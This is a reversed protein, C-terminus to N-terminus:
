LPLLDLESKDLDRKRSFFFFVVTKIHVPRIAPAGSLAGEDLTQSYRRSETPVHEPVNYRCLGQSPQEYESPFRLLKSLVM